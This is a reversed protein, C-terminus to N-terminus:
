SVAARHVLDTRGSLRQAAQLATETSAYERDIFGLSYQSM